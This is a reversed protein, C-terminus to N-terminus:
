HKRFFNVPLASIRDMVIETIKNNNTKVNGQKACSPSM